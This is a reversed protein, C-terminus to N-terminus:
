ELEKLATEYEEGTLYRVSGDFFLVNGGEKHNGKKDAALPTNGPLGDVMASPTGAPTHKRPGLYDMAGKPSKASPCKFIDEDEHEVLPAKEFYGAPHSAKDECRGALCLWFKEGVHPPYFRNKGFEFVYIHMAKYAQSLNNACQARNASEKASALATFLRGESGPAAARTRLLALEQRLEAIEKHLQETEQELQQVRAKLKEIESTAKADSQAAALNIGLLFLLLSVAAKEVMLRMPKGGVVSVAVLRNSGDVVRFGTESAPAV